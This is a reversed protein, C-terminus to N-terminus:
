AEAEKQTSTTATIDVKSADLHRLRERATAIAEGMTPAEIEEAWHRLHGRANAYTASVWFVASGRAPDQPSM